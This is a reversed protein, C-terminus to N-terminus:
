IRCWFAEFSPYQVLGYVANCLVAKTDTWTTLKAVSVVQPLYQGKKGIPIFADFWHAPHSDTKLNQKICWDINPVTDECNQIEYVYKGRCKIVKGNPVKKPLKINQTFPPRDFQKVYNKKGPGAAPDEGAPITPAHYAGEETVVDNDGPVMIEWHSMPALGTGAMNDLINPDLGTVIPVNAEIAQCLHLLLGPKNGRVSLNQAKLHDKIVKVTMTTTSALTLDPPANNEDVQGTTKTKIRTDVLDEEPLNLGGKDEVQEYSPGVEGDSDYLIEDSDNDVVPAIYITRIM